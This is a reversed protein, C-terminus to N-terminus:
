PGSAPSRGTSAKWNPTQRRPMARAILLGISLGLGMAALGLMVGTPPLILEWGPRLGAPLLGYDIVGALAAVVFGAVWGLWAGSRPAARVWGAALAAWFLCSGVHILAGLGSHTLDLSVVTAVSAGYIAQTSVNFPMWVPLGQAASLAGLVVASAVAGLAGALLWAPAFRVRASPHNM